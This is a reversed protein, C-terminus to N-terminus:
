IVLGTMSVAAFFLLINACFCQFEILSEDEGASNNEGAIHASDGEIKRSFDSLPLLSQKCPLKGGDETIYPNCQLASVWLM